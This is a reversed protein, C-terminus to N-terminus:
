LFELGVGFQLGKRSRDSVRDALPLCFNLEFRAASAAGLEHRYVLGVGASVSPTHLLERVTARPNDQDLPLLSGCTLFTQLRLPLDPRSTPIPFLVNATASMMADGGVFDNGDRPGLGNYYFGRVSLPGGLQFRDNLRAGGSRDNALSWIFGAQGTLTATVKRDRSLAAATQTAVHLKYFSSDGGLGLGALEHTVRAWTGRTPFANDDRTDFTFTHSLASKLSSGAAARVTESATPALNTIQRWVASYGYEHVGYATLSRFKAVVDRFLEDHSAYSQNSRMLSSVGVMFTHYPSTNVPTTGMVELATRTKTGTAVNVSLTEGGGLANRVAVNGYAGAESNGFDTGTRAIVRPREQLMFLVDIDNPGALPSKARDLTVGINSFIDFARLRDCTEQVQKLSSLLTENPADGDATAAAWIM